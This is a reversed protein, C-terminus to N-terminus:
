SASKLLHTAIPLSSPLRYFFHVTAPFARAALFFKTLYVQTVLRSVSRRRCRGDDAAM